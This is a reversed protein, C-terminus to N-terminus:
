VSAWQPRPNSYYNLRWVWLPICAVVLVRNSLDSCRSYLLVCAHVPMHGIVCFVFAYMLYVNSGQLILTNIKVNRCGKMIKKWINQICPTRTPAEKWRQNESFLLMYLPCFYCLQVFSSLIKPFSVQEDHVPSFGGCGFHLVGWWACRAGEDGRERKLPFSIHQHLQCTEWPELRLM